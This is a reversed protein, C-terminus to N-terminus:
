LFRRMTEVLQLAAQRSKEKIVERDEESQPAAYLISRSANILLERGATQLVGELDGGQAGIGPVLLPVGPAIERIRSFADTERTAGVVLWLNEATKNRAAVAAAIKEFLPPSGHLQYERAGPNSTLCLVIVGKERYGIFPELSELGMYPNVTLADFDHLVFASRAYAEATSGIDGRKGDAIILTEPAVRRILSSIERLLRDGSDFAEFFALNPKFAVALDSLARIVDALFASFGDFDPSYARPLLDPRPDLGVCLLSHLRESQRKYNEYFTSMERQEGM